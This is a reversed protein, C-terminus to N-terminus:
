NTIVSFIMKPKKARIWIVIQQIEEWKLLPEGGFFKIHNYKKWDFIELFKEPNFIKADYGIDVYCYECHLNCLKTIYLDLIKM